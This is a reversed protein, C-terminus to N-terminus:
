AVSTPRPTQHSPVPPGALVVPGPRFLAATVAAGVLFVGAAVWFVTHYSSLAALAQAQEAPAGADDALYRDVASASIYTFTALGIAGGVQQMTNVMASAVGADDDDVGSTAVNQASGFVLGTGFGFLLVAPLVGTLYSSDQDIGTLLVLAAVAFLCGAPIVPRPGVRPLLVSGSVGAGLVLVAAFPLFGLGAETASWGLTQQLYYSLYLFVAFSGVGSIAISLFGAGRNRDWVVSLPLLPHATRAERLVFGVVLLAGVALPVWTSPAGRGEVASNGLGFVVGALGAVVLVAGPLDVSRTSAGGRAAGPDRVFALAGLLAVAAIAVNIYLCWRWSLQDTLVGGLTLGIAGGMGSVAGFVAFARGRETADDAFTVSVLSLAAPALAAAFLGQAIRAGLLVEFTPAAGGVASSVAFGVLGITLFRRRGFRDALRGGFLLLSGYALAYGTVLWERNELDFGLDSQASPLAINIITGDLVDMLQALSLVLLAM